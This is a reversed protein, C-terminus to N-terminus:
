RDLGRINRAFSMVRSVEDQIVTYINMTEEGGRFNSQPKENKFNPCLPTMFFKSLFLPTRKSPPPPTGFQKMMKGYSFSTKM